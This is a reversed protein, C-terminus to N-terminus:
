RALTPLCRVYIETHTPGLGAHAPPAGEFAFLQQHIDLEINEKGSALVFSIGIEHASHSIMLLRNGELHPSLRLAGFAINHGVVTLVRCNNFEEVSCLRALERILEAHVEDDLQDLAVTLNTSASALLNVSVHNSEFCQFVKSLFGSVHWMKVASLPTLCLVTVGTQLTVM